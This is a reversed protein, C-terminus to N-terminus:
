PMQGSVDSQLGAVGSGGAADTPTAWPTLVRGVRVIALDVAIALAISAVAGAYMETPFHLHYGNLIFYGLGGFTDGLTATITVLGITSVSALRIGAVILPIGLPVLVGWLRQRPTFGMGEATEVVDPGAADLGAVINRILIVFTYMVLPIEVTLLTIGTVSVLAAFVALSPITYLIGATATIPPYASRWRVSAVALGFSIVFGVAVAIASLYLHQITRAAIVGLHDVLWAWDIM